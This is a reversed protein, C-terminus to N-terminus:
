YRAATKAEVIDTSLFVVYAFFITQQLLMLAVRFLLSKKPTEDQTYRTFSFFVFSSFVSYKSPFFFFFFFSLFFSLRQPCVSCEWPPM